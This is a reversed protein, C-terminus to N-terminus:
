NYEGRYFKLYEVNATVACEEAIRKLKADDPVMKDAEEMLQLAKRQISAILPEIEKLTKKPNEIDRAYRDLLDLLGNTRNAIGASPTSISPFTTPRLEGLPAVGTPLTETVQKKVQAANLNQQFLGTKPKETKQPGSIPTSNSIDTIKIM